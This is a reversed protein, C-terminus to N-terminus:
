LKLSNNSFKSEGTVSIRKQKDKKADGTELSENSSTASENIQALQHAHNIVHAPVLGILHAHDIM